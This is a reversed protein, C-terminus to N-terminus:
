YIQEWKNQDLQLQQAVLHLQLLLGVQPLQILRVVGAATDDDHSSAGSDVEAAVIQGVQFM